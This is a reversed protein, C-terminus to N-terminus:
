GTPRRAGVLRKGWYGGFLQDVKVGARPNAAHVMKGNGIYIGVHGVHRGRTRFFLLDGPKLDKGAVKQGSKFQAAATRPIDVGKVESYLYKTFGSCDFGRKTTGGWRYPFGRMSLATRVLKKTADLPSKTLRSPPAAPTESPLAAPPEHTIRSPPPVAPIATEAYETQDATASSSCFAALGIVAILAPINRRGFLLLCDKGPNMEAHAARAQPRCVKGM